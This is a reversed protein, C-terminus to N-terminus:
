LICKCCMGRALSALFEYQKKAHGTNKSELLFLLMDNRCVCCNSQARSFCARWHKRHTIYTCPDLDKKGAGWISAQFSLHLRRNASRDIYCSVNKYTTCSMFVVLDYICIMMANTSYIVAELELRGYSLVYRCKRLVCVRMM